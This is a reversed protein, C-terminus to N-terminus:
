VWFARALMRLKAPSVLKYWSYTGVKNWAALLWFNISYFTIAYCLAALLIAVAVIESARLGVATSEGRDAPTYAPPNSLSHELLDTPPQLHLSFRNCSTEVITTMIIIECFSIHSMEVDQEGDQHSDLRKQGKRPEGESMRPRSPGKVLHVNGHIGHGTVFRISLASSLMRTDKLLSFRTVAWTLAFRNVLRQAHGHKNGCNAEPLKLTPRRALSPTIM